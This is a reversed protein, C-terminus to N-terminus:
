VGAKIILVSAGLKGEWVREALVGLTEAAGSSGKIEDSGSGQRDLVANM